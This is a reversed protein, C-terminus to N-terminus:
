NVHNELFLQEAVGAVTDEGFDKWLWEQAHEGDSDGTAVFSVMHMLEHIVVWSQAKTFYFRSRYFSSFNADDPPIRCGGLRVFAGIFTEDFEEPSNLWIEPDYLWFFDDDQSLVHFHSYNILNYLDDSPAMDRSLRPNEDLFKRYSITVWYAIEAVDKASLVESVTETIEVVTEGTDPDAVVARNETVIDDRDSEEQFTVIADYVTYEPSIFTGRAEHEYEFSDLAPTSCVGDDETRTGDYTDIPRQVACGLLSIISLLAFKSTTKLRM